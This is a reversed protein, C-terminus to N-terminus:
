ETTHNSDHYEKLYEKVKVVLKNRYYPNVIEGSLICDLIDLHDKDLYLLLGNWLENEEGQPAEASLGAAGDLSDPFFLSKRVSYLNPHTDRKKIQLPVTFKDRFFNALRNGLLVNLWCELAVKPDSHKVREIEFEDLQQLAIVWCEQIIDQQTYHAFSKNQHNLAVKYIVEYIESKSLPLNHM